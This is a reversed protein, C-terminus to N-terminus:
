NICHFRGDAVVKGFSCFRLRHNFGITPLCRKYTVVVVKQASLKFNRSTKVEPLHGNSACDGDDPAFQISHHWVAGIHSIHSHFLSRKILGHTASPVCINNEFIELWSHELVGQEERHQRCPIQINIVNKILM